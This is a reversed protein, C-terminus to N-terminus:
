FCLNLLPHIIIGFQRISNFFAMCGLFAKVKSEDELSENKHLNEVLNICLLNFKSLQVNELSNEVVHKKDPDGNQSENDLHSHNLISTMKDFSIRKVGVL